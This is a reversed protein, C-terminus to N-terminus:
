GSCVHEAVSISQGSDANAGGTAATSTTTTAELVPLSATSADAVPEFIGIGLSEGSLKHAV